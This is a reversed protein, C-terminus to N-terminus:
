FTCNCGGLIPWCASCSPDPEANDMHKVCDASKIEVMRDFILHNPGQHEACDCKSGEGSEEGSAEAFYDLAKQDDVLAVAYVRERTDADFEQYLVMNPFPKNVISFTDAGSYAAELEDFAVRGVRVEPHKVLFTDITISPFNQHPKVTM